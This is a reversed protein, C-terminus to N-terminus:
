RAFKDTARVLADIIGPESAAHGADGIIQLDAEPWARSLEWATKMPTVVDYRGQVIVGPIR